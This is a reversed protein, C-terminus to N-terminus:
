LSFIEYLVNNYGGKIEALGNKGPAATSASRGWVSVEYEGAPIEKYASVPLVGYHDETGVINCGTTSGDVWSGNIRVKLAIMIAKNETGYVGRHHCDVHGSVKIYSKESVSFSWTYGSIESMKEQLNPSSYIIKQKTKM